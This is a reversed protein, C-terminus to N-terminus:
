YNTIILHQNELDSLSNHSYKVMYKECILDKFLGYIYSDGKCVLMVKCKCEKIYEYIYDYISEFEQNATYMTDCNLYPPDLFIFVNENFKCDMMIDKYDVNEITANQLINSYENDLVKFNEKKYNGWTNNYKGSSNVRWKGSFATKNLYYFIAAQEIRNEYEENNLKDVIHQFYDKNLEMEQLHKYLENYNSRLVEYFNILHPNIDNIVANKPQLHWYLAGGGFFPEVYTDFEPIYEQFYKIERAKGGTWKIPSKM